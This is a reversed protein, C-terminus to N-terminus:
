QSWPNKFVIGQQHGLVNRVASIKVFARQHFKRDMPTQITPRLKNLGNIQIIHHWNAGRLLPKLSEALLQILRNCHQITSKLQEGMQLQGSAVNSTTSFSKPFPKRVHRFPWLRRCRYAASLCSAKNWHEPWGSGALKFDKANKRSWFFLIAWANQLNHASQM